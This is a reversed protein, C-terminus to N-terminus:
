VDGGEGGADCENESTGGENGGNGGLNASGM